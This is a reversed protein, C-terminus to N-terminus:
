YESVLLDYLDSANSLFVDEGNIEICGQCWESGFNLEYIFYSIFNFRQDDFADELVDVILQEYEAFSIHFNFLKEGISNLNDEIERLEKIKDIYKIFNDKTIM